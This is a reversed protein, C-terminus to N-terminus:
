LMLRLTLIYCTDGGCIIRKYQHVQSSLRHRINSKYEFNQINSFESNYVFVKRINEKMDAVTFNTGPSRKNESKVVFFVVVGLSSRM